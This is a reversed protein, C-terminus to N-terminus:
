SEYGQRTLSPGAAVGSHHKWALYQPGMWSVVSYTLHPQKEPTDVHERHPMDNRLISYDRPDADRTPGVNLISQAQHLRQMQGMRM